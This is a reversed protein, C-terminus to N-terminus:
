ALASFLFIVQLARGWSGGYFKIYYGMASMVLLYAAASFMVTAHFIVRRSVFIRVSWSPNRAAAIAVM